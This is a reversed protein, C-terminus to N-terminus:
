SQTAAPESTTAEATPKTADGSPEAAGPAPKCSESLLKNVLPFFDKAFENCINQDATETASAAGSLYLKFVARANPFLMRAESEPVEWKVTGGETPRFWSWYTRWRHAFIGEEDGKGFLATFFQAPQEGEVNFTYTSTSEYAMNGQSPNCVDPTHRGIDNIHGVILWVQVQVGTTSHTYVRSLATGVAGAGERVDEEVENDKGVWPGFQMPIQAILAACEAAQVNEPSWRDTVFGEWLTLAIAAPVLLLIPLYRLM